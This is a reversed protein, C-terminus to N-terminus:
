LNICNDCNASVLESTDVEFTYDKKNNCSSCLPVIYRHKDDSNKKMVHGGCLESHEFKKGCGRCWGAQMDNKPYKNIDWHEIWSNCKCVPEPFQESSNNLNKVTVKM